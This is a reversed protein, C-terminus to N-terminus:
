ITMRNQMKTALCLWINETKETNVELGVEKSAELLAKTNKKIININEDLIILMSWSSIHEMLNWDKRM